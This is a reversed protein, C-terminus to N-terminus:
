RPVRAMEQLKLVTRWNRVTSITALKSDFYSNTLKTDAAGTTLNLYIERGRVEFSDGPSRGPDLAAILGRAPAEALFVVYLAAGGEGATAGAGLFPNGSAARDIEEATRLVVPPRFGRREAIKDPVVRPIRKACAPTASFVVNGSQIYTRVDACGAETFIEVLERMPLMNNGGVNIARLLAVHTSAAGSRRPAPKGPAAEPPGLEDVLGKPATNRWAAIMAKRLTASDVGDLRVQTCGRLGWGGKVPAFVKPKAKVFRGQQEPTLKVMGWEDDPWLTAFIKGKVRFDPHGMHAEETALPMSLAISRFKETTM